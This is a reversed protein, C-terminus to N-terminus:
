VDPTEPRLAVAERAEWDVSQDIYPQREALRQERYHWSHWGPKGDLILRADMVADRLTTLWDGEYWKDQGDRRVKIDITHRPHLEDLLDRGDVHSKVASLINVLAEELAAERDIGM